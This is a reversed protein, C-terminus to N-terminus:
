ADADARNDDNQASATQQEHKQQLYKILQDYEMGVKTLLASLKDEDEELRKEIKEIDNQDTINRILLDLYIEKKIAKFPAEDANLLAFISFKAFRLNECQKFKVNKLYARSFDTNRLDTHEDFVAGDLNAESFDTGFLDVDYFKVQKLSSRIFQSQYLNVNKFTSGDFNFGNLKRTRLNLRVDGAGVFRKNTFDLQSAQLINFIAKDAYKAIFPREKRYIDRIKVLFNIALDGYIELSSLHLKIAASDIKEKKEEEVIAEFIEKIQTLREVDRNAQSRLDASKEIRAARIHAAEIQREAILKTNELNQKNIQHTGWAGVIAIILPTLTVKAFDVWFNRRKEKEKLERQQIIEDLLIQLDGIPIDKIKQDDIPM